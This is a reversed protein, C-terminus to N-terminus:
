AARRRALQSRRPVRLRRLRPISHGQRDTWRHFHDSILVLEFGSAEGRVAQGVLDTPVFGESSLKYGLHLM